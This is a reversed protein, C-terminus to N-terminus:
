SHLTDTIRDKKYFIYDPSSHSNIFLFKWFRESPDVRTVIDCIGPNSVFPRLWGIYRIDNGDEAYVNIDFAPEVDYLIVKPTYRESMLEYLGASLVIGNGDVGANYAKMGLSEALINPVYHHHARSSGMVVFDAEQIFATQQIKKTVGGKAHHQLWDCTLGFGVDIITVIGIFLLILLLYKKMVRFVSM